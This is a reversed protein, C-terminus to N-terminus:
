LIETGSSVPCNRNNLSLVFNVTLEGMGGHGFKPAVWFYKQGCTNYLFDHTSKAFFITDRGCPLSAASKVINLSGNAFMVKRM